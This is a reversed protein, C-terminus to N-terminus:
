PFKINALMILGWVQLVEHNPQKDSEMSCTGSKWGNVQPLLPKAAEESYLHCISLDDAEGHYLEDGWSLHSFQEIKQCSISLLEVVLLRQQGWTLFILSFFNSVSLHCLTYRHDHRSCVKLILELKFMEVLEEALGRDRICM